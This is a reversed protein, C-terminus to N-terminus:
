KGAGASEAGAGPKPTCVPHNASSNGSNNASNNGISIGKKIPSILFGIVMGLLFFTFRHVAPSNKTEKKM